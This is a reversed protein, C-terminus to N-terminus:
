ASIVHTVGCSTLFYWKPDTKFPPPVNKCLSRLALTDSQTDNISSNYKAEISVDAPPKAIGTVYPM